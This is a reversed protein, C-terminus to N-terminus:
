ATKHNKYSYEVEAKADTFDLACQSLCIVITIWEFLATDKAAGVNDSVQFDDRYTVNDKSRKELM